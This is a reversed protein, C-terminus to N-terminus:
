AFRWNEAADSLVLGNCLIVLVEQNLIGATGSPCVALVVGTQGRKSHHKGVPTVLRGVRPDRKAQEGRHQEVERALRYVEADTHMGVPNDLETDAIIEALRAKSLPKWTRM